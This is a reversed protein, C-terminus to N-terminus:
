EDSWESEPTASILEIPQPNAERYRKFATSEVLALWAHEKPDHCTQQDSRSTYGVEEVFTTHKVTHDWIAICADLLDREEVGLEDVVASAKGRIWENGAHCRLCEAM